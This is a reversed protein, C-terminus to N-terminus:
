ANRQHQKRREVHELLQRENLSGVLVVLNLSPHVAERARHGVRQSPDHPELWGQLEVSLSFCVEKVM